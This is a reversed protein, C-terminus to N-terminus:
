HHAHPQAIKSPAPPPRHAIISDVLTKFDDSTPLRRFALKKRDIFFTPTGDVLLSDGEQRSYEIRSAYKGSAMCQDYRDLSAVGAAKALDHFLRSPNKGTQAWGHNDFLQDQMDWAKGQEGACQVAHAAYRSYQHIALPYDRVRWRVKGTEILQQRITPLQLTAFQACVPCEYDVYEVVEVPATGSGITYGRFGDDVVARPPASAAATSMTGGSRLLMFMTAGLVVALTGLVVYFRNV